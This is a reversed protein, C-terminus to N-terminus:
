LAGVNLEGEALSNICEVTYRICGAGSISDTLRATTVSRKPRKTFRTTIARRIWPAVQHCFYIEYFASLSRDAEEDMFMLCRFYLFLIVLARHRPSLLIARPSQPRVFHARLVPSPRFESSKITNLTEERKRDRLDSVSQFRPFLSATQVSTISFDRFDQRIRSGDTLLRRPTFNVQEFRTALPDRARIQRATFSDHFFYKIQAVENRDEAPRAAFSFEDFAALRHYSIRILIVFYLM